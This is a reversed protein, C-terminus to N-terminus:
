CFVFLAFATDVDFDKKRLYRLQLYEFSWEGETNSNWVAGWYVSCGSSVLTLTDLRQTQGAALLRERLDVVQEDQRPTTHGSTGPIPEKSTSPFDYTDYSSM